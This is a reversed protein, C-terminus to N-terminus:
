ILKLTMKRAIFTRFYSRYFQERKQWLLDKLGEAPPNCSFFINEERRKVLTNGQTYPRKIM